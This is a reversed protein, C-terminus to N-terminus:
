PPYPCDPRDCRKPEAAAVYVDCVDCKTMNETRLRRRPDEDPSADRVAGIVSSLRGIARYGFLVVVIVFVTLLIKTLM